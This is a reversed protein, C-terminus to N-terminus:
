NPTHPEEVTRSLETLAADIAALLLAKVAHPEAAALLRDAIDDPIRRMRAIVEAACEAFVRSVESAEVLAARRERIKIELEECRARDLRAKEQSPSMGDTSATAAALLRAGYWAVCAPLAFLAARGPAGRKAVPMGDVAFKDLTRVHVGLAAALVPRTLLPTPAKMGM